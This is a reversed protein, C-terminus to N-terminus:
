HLQKSSTLSCQASVEWQTEWATKIGCRLPPPDFYYFEYRSCGSLNYFFISLWSSRPIELSTYVRKRERWSRTRNFVSASSTWSSHATLVFFFPQPYHAPLIIVFYFHCLVGKMQERNVIGNGKKTKSRWIVHFSFFHALSSLLLFPFAPLSGKKQQQQCTCFGDAYSLGACGM